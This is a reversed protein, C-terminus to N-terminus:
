PRDAAVLLYPSTFRNPPPALGARDLGRSLWEVPGAVGHWLSRRWGEGPNVVLFNSFLVPRALAVRLGAAEHAAVLQGLGLPVHRRFVPENVLRQLSGPLGRMNPILTVIRGGPRAFRAFAEIAGRTDPFHEVVGLSVVRDFSGALGPPPDFADAEIIRGEVGARALLLRAQECGLTEYDIGTVAFGLHRAFAPLWASAGAGIEILTPPAPLTPPPPQAPPGSRSSGDTEPLLAEALAQWMRRRAQSRISPDAPDFPPPLAGAQWFARWYARDTLTEPARPAGPPPGV